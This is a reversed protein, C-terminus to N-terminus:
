VAVAPLATTDKWTKKYYCKGNVRREDDMGNTWEREHKVKKFLRRVGRGRGGRLNKANYLADDFKFKDFNISDVPSTPPAPPPNRAVVAAPSPSQWVRVRSLKEWGDESMVADAYGRTPPIVVFSETNTEEDSVYVAPRVPEAPSVPAAPKVPVPVEAITRPFEAYSCTDLDSSNLAPRRKRKRITQKEAICSVWPQSLGSIVRSPPNNSRSAPSPWVSCLPLCQNHASASTFAFSGSM